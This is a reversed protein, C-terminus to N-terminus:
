KRKKGGIGAILGVLAGYGTSLLPNSTIPCAGSVCGVFWYYAFGVAGGGVVWGGIKLLTRTKM